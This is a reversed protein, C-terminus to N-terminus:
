GDDSKARKKRFRKAYPHENGSLEIYVERAQKSYGDYGYGTELYQYNKVKYYLSNYTRKPYNNNDMAKYLERVIGMLISSNLYISCALEDHSREWKIRSM